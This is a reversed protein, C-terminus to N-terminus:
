VREIMGTSVLVWKVLSKGLWKRRLPAILSLLFCRRKSFRAIASRLASIDVTSEPVDSVYPMVQLDFQAIFKAYSYTGSQILDVYANETLRQVLKEDGLQDIVADCNSFDKKLAIYHVNPKVIGQYEGEFLIMVVRLAAMEFIRPSITRYGLRDEMQGFFLAQVEGFSASPNRKQYAVVEPRIKDEIDFVSVGAEVGIMAKCNAVFEHWKHGYIRDSEATKIDMRLNSKKANEAFGDAIETKEQAGKGMWFPLSRARYGVDISRAAFPKAITKTREVFEDDVYGTLTHFVRKANTHKYYVEDHHVPDLLTYVLDVGVSNIVCCRQPVYQYEDQLFVIKIAKHQSKLFEIFKRNLGFPYSGFLSYHLIIIGFSHSVLFGPFGLATNLEIVHHRSYKGFARVHEMITPADDTIPHAYLLLANM